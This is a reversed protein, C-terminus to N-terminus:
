YLKCLGGLCFELLADFSITNRKNENNNKIKIKLAYM